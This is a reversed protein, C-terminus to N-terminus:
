RKTFWVVADPRAGSLVGGNPAGNVIHHAHASEVYGLIAGTRRDIRMIWGNASTPENRQQTGIWLAGDHLAVSTVMGLNAWQGLFKGSSDFRQLRGNQRDAVYVVGDSDVAIGHPQHFQGPGNGASGWERILKGDPSYELVRANGYGDSVFLHGNPAIAIDTTGNFGSKAPPQGGVSINMLEKGEPTFKIVHSSAADVTWVNGAPDIRISHPIQFMGKGWSRVIRGERNVVLVPDAKEGRQLIYLLGHSDMAVSSPYGIEWAANPPKIKFEVRELPLRPARAISARLEVAQQDLDAGSTQACVSFCLLGLLLSTRNCDM